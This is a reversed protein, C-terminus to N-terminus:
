VQKRGRKALRDCADNLYAASGSSPDRHGKVWKTEIGIDPGLLAKLQMQLRRVRPLRSLRAGTVVHLQLLAEQSDSRVQFGRVDNGWERLALSMGAYIAALEAESSNKVFAPCKGRRVIRGRECRLWVGWGGGDSPSFSADAYLTVWM